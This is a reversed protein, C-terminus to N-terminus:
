YKVNLHRLHTPKRQIIHIKREPTCLMHTNSALIAYIIIFLYISNGAVHWENSTERKPYHRDLHGNSGAFHGSNGWLLYLSLV